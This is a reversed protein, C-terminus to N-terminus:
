RMRRVPINRTVSAGTWRAGGPGPAGAQNLAAAISHASAGNARLADVREVVLPGAAAAPRRRRSRGPVPLERQACGTLVDPLDDAAVAPSWLFGQAQQCGLARLAAFQEVTEVGEGISTAGVAHALSVVSRCIAEDNLSLGIGSVFVRDLKLASIPYRRLYLLSSYGTGFDDIAIRVGLQALGNLAVAAADADQMFVSETVELMLRRPDLGSRQLADRVHEVVDPQTLQRVSLNVAVDLGQAAGTFGAADRCAQDVAWRGLPVIL